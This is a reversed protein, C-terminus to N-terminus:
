PFRFFVKGRRGDPGTGSAHRFASAFDALEYEGAVASQLTRGVVLDAVQEYALRVEARDTNRIWNVIWFGFISFGGFTLNPLSLPKADVAAFSVVSGGPVLAGMLASVSRGGTGALILSLKEQRLVEQVEKALGDSEVVILDGLPNVLEAAETRRVVNLTRLGRDRALSIVSSGVASNAATQAIWDGERLNAYELLQFATMQNLGVTSLQVPDFDPDVTVLNSALVNLSEQWTFQESTPIIMVRDGVEADGVGSGLAVVRGVGSQGAGSPAAPRIGYRGRIFGLDSPDVPAAEMRVTVEAPGPDGLEIREFAVVAGPEGISKFRIATTPRVRHVKKKHDTNTRRQETILV